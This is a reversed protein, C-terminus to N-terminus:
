RPQTANFKGSSLRSGLRVLEPESLEAECEAVGRSNAVYAARIADYQTAGRPTSRFQEELRKDFACKAILLEEYWAPRMGLRELDDTTLWYIEASSTANVRDVLFQPVGSEDLMRRVAATLESQRKQAQTPPLGAFFDQAFYARHVGLKAPESYRFTGSLFLFFCSSACKDGVVHVGAYMQRLLGAIKVTEVLSGGNSSLVVLRPSMQYKPWNTRMFEVFKAFDGARIDGSLYLFDDRNGKSLALPGPGWFFDMGVASLPLSSLLVWAIHIFKLRRSKAVQQALDRRLLYM